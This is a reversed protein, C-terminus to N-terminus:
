WDKEGSKKKGKAKKANMKEATKAEARQIAELLGKIEEPTMKATTEGGEKPKNQEGKEGQEDEQPQQSPDQEGKDGDGQQDQNKKSNDQDENEEQPQENPHDSKEQKEGNEQDQDQQQDQNQDQQQEQQKQQELARNLNYVADTRNPQRKLSEIYAGAAEQFQGADMLLNGLNYLADSQQSPNETSQTADVLAQAAGEADGGQMLATGTNFKPIFTDPQQESAADYAVAADEWQGNKFAENGKRVEQGYTHLNQGQAMNFGFLAVILAVGGVRQPLLLYLLLFLLVPYLFWMFQSDYNMAIEEQIDSKEGDEIFAKINALASETANGDAYQAGLLNTIERLVVDDRKTIVVEGNNDKKYTTGNRGKSMPIPGGINTGVGVVLVNVPLEPNIPSTSFEHDEGDTLVIIFRGAPSAPKFYEQAYELAASLNTGQSPVQDPDASALAMKAAAYDTTIPLAPYASGAYAVVGVRDGGLGDITKSILLKAKDLRSPAIDEAWMSRSVDLAFVVDAGRRQILQKQGGMQLNAVSLGACGLALALVTYRTFFRISGKAGTTLTSVQEELGLKKWMGNRWRHFLVAALLVAVFLAPGIWLWEPHQWKFAM